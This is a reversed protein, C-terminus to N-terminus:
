NEHKLEEISKIVRESYKMFEFYKVSKAFLNVRWEDLLQTGKSCNCKQCSLMYNNINNEGGKSKPIIHDIELNDIHFKQKCYFCKSGHKKLLFNIVKKHRTRM